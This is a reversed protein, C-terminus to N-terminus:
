GGIDHPRNMDKIGDALRGSNIRSDNDGAVFTVLVRVDPTGEAFGIRHSPMIGIAAAFAARLQYRCGVPTAKKTFCVRSPDRGSTRAVDNTTPIPCAIPQHGIDHARNSVVLDDMNAIGVGCSWPLVHEVGQDSIEKQSLTQRDSLRSNGGRPIKPRVDVTLNRDPSQHLADDVKPTGRHTPFNIPLTM